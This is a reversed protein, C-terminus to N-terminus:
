LTITKNVLTYKEAEKAWHIWVILLTTRLMAKINQEKTGPIAGTYRLKLGSDM